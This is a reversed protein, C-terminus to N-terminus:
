KVAFLFPAQRAAWERWSEDAWGNFVKGIVNGEADLYATLQGGDGEWILMTGCARGGPYSRISYVGDRVADFRWEPSGVEGEELLRVCRSPRPEYRTRPDGALRRVEGEAMGVAIRGYLGASITPRILYCTLVALALSLIAVAVLRHHRM